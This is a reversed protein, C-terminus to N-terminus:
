DLGRAVTVEQLVEELVIVEVFPVKTPIVIRLRYTTRRQIVKTQGHQDSTSQLLDEECGDPDSGLVGVIWCSRGGMISFWSLEEPEDERL